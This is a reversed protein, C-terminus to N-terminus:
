EAAESGVMPPELLTLEHQMIRREIRKFLDYSRGGHKDADVRLAREIIDYEDVTFSDSFRKASQKKALNSKTM